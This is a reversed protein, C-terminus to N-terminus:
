KLLLRNIAEWWEAMELGQVMVFPAGPNCKMHLRCVWPHHVNSNDTWARKIIDFDIGHMHCLAEREELIELEPQNMAWSAIALLKRM